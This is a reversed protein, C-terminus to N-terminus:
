LTDNYHTNTGYDHCLVFYICLLKGEVTITTTVSFNGAENSVTCIYSGGDRIVLNPIIITNNNITAHVPFVNGNRTERSWSYHLEPSGESTCNLELTEGYEYLTSGNITVNFPAVVLIVYIIYIRM